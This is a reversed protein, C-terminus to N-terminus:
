RGVGVGRRVAFRPVDAAGVSVNALLRRAHPGQVALIARSATVDDGPIVATVRDTNSANPMVHFDSEDVWWGIIDDLVSGDDDLLHTYQAQGPGIKHLDNTLAAQLADLVGAGSARVTGLHSVDFVVAGTRCARHEALTGALYNLPMEWGGFPVLKAGLARHAGDLPSHRMTM